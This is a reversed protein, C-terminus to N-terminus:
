DRRSKLVAALDPVKCSTILGVGGAHAARAPRGGQAAVAAAPRHWVMFTASQESILTNAYSEFHGILTNNLSGDITFGGADLPVIFTKGRVRHGDLVTSTLWNIVAGAPAAYGNGGGGVVPSVPDSVWTDLLEGTVSDIIDGTDEVQINVDGPLDGAMSTFFAHLSEVITDTSTTYFTSVGPGGNFGSWSARVRSLDVM